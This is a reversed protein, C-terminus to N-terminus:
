VIPQSRHWKSQWGWGEPSLLFRSIRENGENRRRKQRVQCFLASEGCWALHFSVRLLRFYKWIESVFLPRCPSILAGRLPTHPTYTHIHTHQTFSSSPTTKHWKMMERGAAFGIVKGKGKWGLLYGSHCSRNSCRRQPLQALRSISMVSARWQWSVHLHTLSTLSWPTESGTLHVVLELDWEKSPVHRGSLSSRIRKKALHKM